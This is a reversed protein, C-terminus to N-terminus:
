ASPLVLLTRSRSAMTVEPPRSTLGPVRRAHAILARGLRGLPTPHTGRGRRIGPGRSTSSPGIALPSARRPGMASPRWRTPSRSSRGPSATGRSSLSSPRLTQHGRLGAPDVGPRATGHGGAHVRLGIGESAGPLGGGDAARQLGALDLLRLGRARRDSARRGDLAGRTTGHSRNLTRIASTAGRWVTPQTGCPAAAMRCPASSRTIGGRAIFGDSVGVVDRFGGPIATWEIGDPSFWM